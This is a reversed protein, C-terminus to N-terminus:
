LSSGSVEKTPLSAAPASSANPPRSSAKEGALLAVPGVCVPTGTVIRPSQSSRSGSSVEVELFVITDELGDGGEEKDCGPTEGILRAGCAEMVSARVGGKAGKV